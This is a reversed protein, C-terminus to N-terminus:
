NSSFIWALTEKKHPWPSSICHKWTNKHPKQKSFTQFLMQQLTPILDADTRYLYITFQPFGLMFATHLIHDMLVFFISFAKMKINKWTNFNNSTIQHCINHFKQPEVSRSHISELGSGTTWLAKLPFKDLLKVIM